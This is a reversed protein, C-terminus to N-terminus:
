KFYTNPKKYFVWIIYNQVVNYIFKLRDKDRWRTEFLSYKTINKFDWKTKPIYM